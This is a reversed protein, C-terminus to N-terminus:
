KYQIYKGNKTVLLKGDITSIPRQVISFFAVEDLQEDLAIYQKDQVTGGNSVTDAMFARRTVADKFSGIQLEMTKQSVVDFTKSIIELNSYYIDLEKHYITIKDGVEFSDLELFEKYKEIDALNAFHVTISVRSQKYEDFYAQADAHFLAVNESEYNFRVYGYIHHPIDETPVNPNTITYTNGFNDEAKLITILQSDDESFEIETMNYSYQIVGSKRCGEMEQNISFYNNDRYLRGGWCNVFAQDVGLLAAVVSCNQYYATRVEPVDSAYTFEPVSPVGGYWGHTMIWTLAESGTKDTPRCDDIMYRQLDYFKQQANAIVRYNGESDMRRKVQRIRFIQQKLEGHYRIPLKVQAQKRLYTFKDWKDCYAEFEAEYLGQEEHRVTCSIPEIIAYGNGNFDTERSSYAHILPRSPQIYMPISQLDIMLPVYPMGNNINPDIRWMSLPSDGVFPKSPMEIFESNTLQNNQILWNLGNDYYVTCSAVDSPVINDSNSYRLILRIYSINKNYTLIEGSDNWGNDYVVDYDSDYMMINIKLPTGNTDTATAIFTTTLDSRSNVAIYASMRVRTSSSEPDGEWDLTGQEWESIIFEQSM